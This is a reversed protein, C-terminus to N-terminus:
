ANHLRLQTRRLELELPLHRLRTLLHFRLLLALLHLAPDLDFLRALSPRHHGSIM